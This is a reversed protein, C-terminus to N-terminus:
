PAEQPLLTVPWDPQWPLKPLTGLSPGEKGAGTLARTHGRSRTLSQPSGAPQSAPRPRPLAAREQVHTRRSCVAGTPRRLPAPPTVPATRGSHPTELHVGSLGSGWGRAKFPHSECRRAKVGAGSSPPEGWARPEENLRVYGKTSIRKEERLPSFGPLAIASIM